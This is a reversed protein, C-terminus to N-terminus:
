CCCARNSFINPEDFLEYPNKVERKHFFGFSSKPWGLIKLLLQCSYQSRLRHRGLITTISITAQKLTEWPLKPYTAHKVVPIIQPPHSHQNSPCMVKIIVLMVISFVAMFEAGYLSPHKNPERGDPPGGEDMQQHPKQKRWFRIRGSLIGSTGLSKM